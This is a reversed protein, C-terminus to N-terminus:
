VHLCPDQPIGDEDMEEDADVDNRVDSKEEVDM